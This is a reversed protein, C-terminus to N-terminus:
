TSKTMPAQKRAETGLRSSVEREILYAGAFALILTILFLGSTAFDYLNDRDAGLNIILGIIALIGTVIVIWNSRIM